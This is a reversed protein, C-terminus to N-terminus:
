IFEREYANPMTRTQKSIAGFHWYLAHLMYGDPRNDCYRRYLRALVFGIILCVILQAILVGAVLAIGIPFVEDIRWFLVYPPEDIYAPIRVENSM